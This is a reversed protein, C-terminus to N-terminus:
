FAGRREDVFPDDVLDAPSRAAGLLQRTKADREGGYFKDLLREFASGAPSIQEFLTACSRVKVDDPSGFIDRASRGEVGLVAEVCELLRPGLVPHALYAKAEDVSNIAYHKSTSSFGLGALQPFVYWIWHTRKQGSRIELLAHQYDNEQAQVFRSLHFPDITGAADTSFIM